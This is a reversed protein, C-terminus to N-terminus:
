PESRKSLFSIAKRIPRSLQSSTFELAMSAGYCYLQRKPRLILNNELTQKVKKHRLIKDDTKIVYQTPGVITQLFFTRKFIAYEHRFVVIDVFYTRTHSQSM